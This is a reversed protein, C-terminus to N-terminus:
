GEEEQDLLIRRIAAEDEPSRERAQDMARRLWTPFARSAFEFYDQPRPRGPAPIHTAMWEWMNTAPGSVGTITLTSHSDDTDPLLLTAPTVGLAVALATLDDVDMRRSGNEIRSIANLSLDHGSATVRDSVERLTLGQATRVERLRSAAVAGTTEGHNEM